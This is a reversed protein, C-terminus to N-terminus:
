AAPTSVAYQLNLTPTTSDAYSRRPLRLRGSLRFFTYESHATRGITSDLNTTGIFYNVDIRLLKSPDVHKMIGNIMTQLVNAASKSDTSNKSQEIAAETM